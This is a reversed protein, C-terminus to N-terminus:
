PDVQWLPPCPNSAQDPFIRYVEPCIHGHVVVISGMSKLRHEVLSALAILIRLVAFM